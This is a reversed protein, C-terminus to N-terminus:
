GVEAARRPPRAGGAAMRVRGECTMGMRVADDRSGLAALSDVAGM